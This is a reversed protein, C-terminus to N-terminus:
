LATSTQETLEHHVILRKGTENQKIQTIAGTGTKRRKKAKNYQNTMGKEREDDNGDEMAEMEIDHGDDIIVTAVVDKDDDGEM